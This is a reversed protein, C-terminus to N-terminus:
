KQNCGLSRERERYTVMVEWGPRRSGCHEGRSRSLCTIHKNLYACMKLVYKKFLCSIFHVKLSHGFTCMARGTKYITLQSTGPMTSPAAKVRYVRQLVTGLFSLAQCPCFVYVFVVFGSVSMQIHGRSVGSFVNVKCLSLVIYGM